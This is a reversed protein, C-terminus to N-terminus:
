HVIEIAKCHQGLFANNELNAAFPMGKVHNKAESVLTLCLYGNLIM